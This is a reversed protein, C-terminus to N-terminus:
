HVLSVDSCKGEIVSAINPKSATLGGEPASDQIEMSEGDMQFLSSAFILAPFVFQPREAFFFHDYIHFHRAHTRKGLRLTPLLLFVIHLNSSTFHSPINVQDGTGNMEM